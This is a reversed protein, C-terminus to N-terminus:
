RPTTSSTCLLCTSEATAESTISFKGAECDTCAMDGTGAKYKGPACRVCEGINNKTYGAKCISAESPSNPPDTIMATASVTVPTGTSAEVATSVAEEVRSIKKTM